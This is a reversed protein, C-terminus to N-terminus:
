HNQYLYEWQQAINHLNFKEHVYTMACENNHTQEDESLHLFEIIKSELADASSPPVLYGYGGMVEKVGGCDTAIVFTGCAMAEAVV